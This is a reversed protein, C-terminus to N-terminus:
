AELCHRAISDSSGSLSVAVVRRRIHWRPYIFTLKTPWALQFYFGFTAGPSLVVATLDIIFRPGRHVSSIRELWATFLGAGVGIVFFPLLPALDERPRRTRTEVVFGRRNNGAFPWDRDQLAFGSLFLLSSILRPSEASTSISIPSFELLFFIFWLPTRSNQFDL